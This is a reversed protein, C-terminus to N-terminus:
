GWTVSPKSVVSPFTRPPQGPRSCECLHGWHQASAQGAAAPSRQPRGPPPAATAALSFCLALSPPPQLYTPLLRSTAGTVEPWEWSGLGVMRGPSLTQNGGSWASRQSPCLLCMSLFSVSQSPTQVSTIIAGAMGPIPRGLSSQEPHLVVHVQPLHAPLTRVPTLPHYSGARRHNIYFICPPGSQDGREQSRVPLVTNRLSIRVRRGTRDPLSPLISPPLWTEESVRTIPM